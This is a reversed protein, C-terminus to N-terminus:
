RQSGERQMNEAVYSVRYNREMMNKDSVFVFLEASDTWWRSKLDLVTNLCWTCISIVGKGVYHGCKNINYFYFFFTWCGGAGGWNQRDRSAEWPKSVNESSNEPFNGTRVGQCSQNTNNLIILSNYLLALGTIVLSIPLPCYNTDIHLRAGSLCPLNM